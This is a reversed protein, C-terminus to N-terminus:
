LGVSLGALASATVGRQEDLVVGDRLWVLRVDGRLAPRRAFGRSGLRVRVGGGAQALWGTEATARMDDLQRLYGAGALLFPTVRREQWRYVVAGDVLVQTLMSTATVDPAGEVDASLDVVFDPRAYHVGGELWLRGVARVGIRGEIAPAADLRASTSFLTTPESTPAQNGLAQADRDGLTGGGFVGGLVTLEIRREVRGAAPPVDQAMEQARGQAAAALLGLAMLAMVRGARRTM